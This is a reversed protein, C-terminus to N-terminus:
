LGLLKEANRHLINHRDEDIIDAALVAGIGQHESFWPLDTGYLLRRSGVKECFTELRGRLGLVATLELCTNPLDNAIAAAEDWAGYLSHGLLFTAQPYKEAVARVQRPGDFQDGAWTHMLVPLRRASAFELAPRYRDHTIAFKHYGALLKLGVFVDRLGDFAALDRASIEPYNPNICCYARLRGPFARVAAIAPAHGTEPCFLAAHHAFVLMRVGAADMSAVMQEPRPGPFYISHWPGMHGHMDIVPCNECRGTRWFEEALASRTWITERLHSM